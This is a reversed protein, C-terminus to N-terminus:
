PGLWVEPVFDSSDCICIAFLNAVVATHWPPNSVRNEWSKIKSQMKFAGFHEKIVEAPYELDM